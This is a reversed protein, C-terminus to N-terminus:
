CNVIRVGLSLSETQNSLCNYRHTRISHTHHLEFKVLVCVEDFINCIFKSKIKYM